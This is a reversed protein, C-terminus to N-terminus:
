QANAGVPSPQFANPLRVGALASLPIEVPRVINGLGSLASNTVSRPANPLSRAVLAPTGSPGLRSAQIARSLGKVGALAAGGALTGAAVSLANPDHLLALAAAAGEGMGTAGIGIPGMLAKARNASGSQPPPKLISQGIQALEGLDGAGQRAVNQFNSLVAGRLLPPSIEGNDGSKPALKEVTMLNKYQWRANQFADWDTTPMNAALGDGLADKIQSAFRAVDSNDNRTLLDLSSGRNTLAQYAQGSIGNANRVSGIKEAMNLLPKADDGLVEQAQGIIQGIKTQVADATPADIRNRSTVDDLVGGIRAHATNLAPGSVDGSPDGYSGTMGRMYAQRQQANNAQYDKNSGLLVDDAYRDDANASIQGVRVPIGYKNIATDALQALGPSVTKNGVLSSAVSGAKDLVAPVAVGALAGTALQQAVPASNAGVSPATAAVGRLANTGAQALMRGGAGLATPAELEPVAAAAITAPVTQGIFRGTQAYPDGVHKQAYDSQQQAVGQQAADALDKQSIGGQTTALADMMPDGSGAAAIGGGTLRSASAATDMGVGQALGELGSEAKEALGGPNIHEQGKLDVWHIAPGTPQPSDPELFYPNSPSGAMAQTDFKRAPDKEMQQATTQQASTMASGTSKYIDTTGAPLAGAAEGALAAQDDASVGSASKASPTAQDPTTIATHEDPTLGISSAVDNSATDTVPSGRYGNGFLQTGIMTGTSPDFPPKVGRQAVIKPNFFSDYPGATVDKVNNLASQFAPSSTDVSQIRGNQYTEFQGPESLVQSVTRGTDQVRKLIAGAVNRQSEPNNPDAEVLSARAILNLGSEDPLPPPASQSSPASTQPAPTLPALEPM